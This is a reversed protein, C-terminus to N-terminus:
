KKEGGSLQEDITRKSLLGTAPVIEAMAKIIETNSDFSRIKALNNANELIESNILKECLQEAVAEDVTVIYEDRFQTRDMDCVVKGKNLRVARTLVKRLAETNGTEIVIATGNQALRDFEGCLKGIDEEDLYNEMDDVVLFGPQWMMALIYNILRNQRYGLTALKRDTELEFLRSLREFEEDSKCGHKRDVDNKLKRATVNGMFLAPTSTVFSLNRYFRNKDLTDVFSIKGKDPRMLGAIISVVLRGGDSRKGTFAVVDGRNIELSIDNVCINDFKKCVNNLVILSMNGAEYVEKM